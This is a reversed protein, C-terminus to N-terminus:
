KRKQLLFEIYDLHSALNARAARIFNVRPPMDGLYHSIVKEELIYKTVESYFKYFFWSALRRIEANEINEEALFLTPPNISELYECIAYISSIAHENDVILVPVEVAPNIKALSHNREWPREEVLKFPLQKELLILRALRSFPCLTFHHLIYM